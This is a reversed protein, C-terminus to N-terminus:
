HAAVLEMSREVPASSSRAPFGLLRIEPSLTVGFRAEVRERTMDMLALVDRDTGGGRNVIFNGCKSSIEAGNMRKGRLGAASILREALDGSPNKWVYGASALAVPQTAKKPKLRQQIDKRIQTEARRVLRMRCGVYIAGPALDFSQSVTHGLPRVEGLTGDPYLFYVASCFDLITGDRTGANGALAAGISSPIGALCEIGGLDRAAAERILGSLSVGAGVAAEEGSFEARGLIGQLKLVLGQVGRASVLVNNGEGLVIVPFGEQDAFNLAYRVDDLDQAMVFFDAPGGIRLSTHFSLPEKFRVPGVIRGLVDGEL